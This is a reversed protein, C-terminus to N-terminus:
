KLAHASCAALAVASCEERSRWLRLTLTPPSGHQIFRTYTHSAYPRSLLVHASSHVACAARTQAQRFRLGAYWPM